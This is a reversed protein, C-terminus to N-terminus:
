RADAIHEQIPQLEGVFQFTKMIFEDLYERTIGNFQGVGGKHLYMLQIFAEHLHNYKGKLIISLTLWHEGIGCPYFTNDTVDIVGRRNDTEIQKQEKYYDTVLSPNGALEMGQTMAKNIFVQLFDKTKEDTFEVGYELAIESFIDNAVKEEYLMFAEKLQEETLGRIPKQERKFFTTTTM